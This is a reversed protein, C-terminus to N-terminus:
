LKEVQRVLLDIEDETNYYHVSARVLDPLGRATFDYQASTRTSLSTNINAEALRAKIEAAPTGDVTFTVLGCKRAGADHVRAGADVLRSRLTAALSAVRS